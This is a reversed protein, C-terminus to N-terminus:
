KNKYRDYSNIWIIVIITIACLLLISMQLAHNVSLLGVVLSLSLAIIIITDRTAKLLAKM